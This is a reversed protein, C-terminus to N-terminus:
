VRERCSARGIKIKPATIQKEHKELGYFQQGGLYRISVTTNTKM